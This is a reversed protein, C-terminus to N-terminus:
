TLADAAASDDNYYKAFVVSGKVELNGLGSCSVYMMQALKKTIIETQRNSFQPRMEWRLGTQFDGM